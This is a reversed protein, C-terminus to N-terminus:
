CSPRCCRCSRSRNSCCHQLLLLLLWLYCRCCCCCCCCCCGSHWGRDGRWRWRWRRLQMIATSVLLMVSPNSGLYVLFLLGSRTGGLGDNGGKCRPERVNCNRSGVISELVAFRECCLWSGNHAANGTTGMGEHMRLLATVEIAENSLWNSQRGFECKEKRRGIKKGHFKLDKGCDDCDRRSNHNSVFGCVLHTSGVWQVKLVGM